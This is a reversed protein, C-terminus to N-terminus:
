HSIWTTWEDSEEFAETAALSGGVADTDRVCQRKPMNGNTMSDSVLQMKASSDTSRPENELVSPSCYTEAAFSECGSLSLLEKLLNNNEDCLSSVQSSLSSVQEELFKIHAVKRKRSAHASARNKAKRLADM